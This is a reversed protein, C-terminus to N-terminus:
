CQPLGSCLRALAPESQCRPSAAGFGALPEWGWRSSFSHIKSGSPQVSRPERLLSLSEPLVTVFDTDWACTLPRRRPRRQCRPKWDLSPPPLTHTHLSPMFVSAAPDTHFAKGPRSAPM